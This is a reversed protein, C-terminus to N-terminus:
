FRLGARVDLFEAVHRHAKLNIGFFLMKQTHYELGWRQYVPDKGKHPAYVYVGLQQNFRIRGIQLEHGALLAGRQFDKDEGRSELERKITFDAIWEAGATIASIRGIRQSMYATIGLLPAQETPKDTRDHRTGILAVLYNRRSGEQEGEMQQRDTFTAQRIAYNFGVTATPFNIGKNPQNIGGNSIHQYTGGARLLFQDSLRYNAMLNAVLPFSFRTSYFLNEPNTEEDYPNTMYAIGGGLRFSISFNKNASLFPEAYVVLSYAKGLVEPNDFDYYALSAGLRPYAQLYQWAKLNSFHFSLDAEVGWPNSDAIDRITSSHPIIFGYHGQLGINIATRSTDSEYNQRAILLGPTILLLFLTFTTCHLLTYRANAKQDRMKMM